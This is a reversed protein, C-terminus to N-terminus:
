PVIFERPGWWLDERLCRPLLYTPDADERLTAEELLLSSSWNAAFECADQSSLRLPAAYERCTSGAKGPSGHWCTLIVVLWFTTQGM